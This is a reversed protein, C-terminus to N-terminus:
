GAPAFRSGGSRRLREGCRRRESRDRIAAHRRAPHRAAFSRPGALCRRDQLGAILAAQARSPPRSAAAPWRRRRLPRRPALDAVITVTPPHGFQVPRRQDRRRHSPRLPLPRPLAPAMRGSVSPPARGSCSTCCASARTTATAATACGRRRPGLRLRGSRRARDGPPRDDLARAPARVDRRDHLHRLARHARRAYCGNPIRAPCASSGTRRRRRRARADGRRADRRRRGARARLVPGARYPGRRGDGLDVPIM